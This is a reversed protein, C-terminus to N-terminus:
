AKGYKFAKLKTIYGDNVSRFSITATITPVLFGKPIIPIARIQVNRALSSCVDCRYLRVLKKKM